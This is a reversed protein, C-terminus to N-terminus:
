ACANTINSATDYTWASAVTLTDGTDAEIVIAGVGPTVSAGARLEIRTPTATIVAHPAVGGLTISALATGTGFLNDGLIITRTGLQGRAPSVLTVSSNVIYTFGGEFVLSAGSNSVIVVHGTQSAAAEGATIVTVTDNGFVIDAAIDALTVSAISTGGGLFNSGTITILTGFSGSNPAISDVVGAPLFTWATSSPTAVVAGTDAFIEVTGTAASANVPVIAVVHTSNSSVIDTTTADAFVVRNAAAGGGLLSTGTITVRTGVRGSSPSVSNISGLALYTWGDVRVVRDGNSPTLVIDGRGAGGHAAVVVVDTSNQSVITSAAVGNLTVNVLTPAGSLLQVGTISVVTGVVGRAPTVTHIDSAILYTFADVATVVAGDTSTLVVDGTIEETAEPNGAEVVVLTDNQFLITSTEVSVLVVREVGSSGSRLDTGTITVVTGSTGSTPAVATINGAVTYTWASAQTVIAGTDATLVVSGASGTAASPGAILRVFFNTEEIILADVGSLTVTTIASGQGRLDRGYLFVATGGIGQTPQLAVVVGNVVHHFADLLRVVVGTDSVLEVDGVTSSGTARVTVNVHTNSSGTVDALTGAVTARVIAVGGGLLSTGSLQVRTGEQGTSPDVATINGPTLYDWGDVVRVIAGTNSTIVIDGTVAASSRAAVVVIVSDNASVVSAVAVGALSVANLSAGGGFMQTGIITVLSGLQGSSPTVSTITGDTLFTFADVSSVQAGTDATLVVTVVGNPAGNPLVVVVETDGASVLGSVAEVSGFLLSAIASGGGLLGVGSLTVRTGSQGTAPDVATINQPDAYTWAGVATITAGTDATVVVNGVGATAAVGAVFTVSTNDATINATPVPVGNLTIAVVAAGGGLLNTGNISVRTGAQGRAPVVRDIAGEDLYTFADTATVSAGSLATLVVDGLAGATGGTAVRVTVVADSGTGTAYTAAVGALTVSALDTSGMLLRAGSIVVTTGTQGLAPVVSTVVGDALHTWVATRAVIAGTDATLVVDAAAAADSTAAVVIVHTNNQSVISESANAGLLVVASTGGGLLNTGSITVITGRQGSTPSVASIVGEEIYEWATSLTVTAGIDSTVVVSGNAQASAATAVVVVTSANQSAVLAAIGGLTVNTVATGGGFLGVGAITVVTGRQGSAPAIADIQPPAVYAFSGSRSVTAGFASTVVVSGSGTAGSAAAVVVIETNSQVVIEAVSVGALTIDRVSSAGLLLGTGRITVFAGAQGQAPTVDTINGVGAYEFASTAIVESGTEATLVVSGSPTAGASPGASVVVVTNNSSLIDASIGALSVTVLVSGQGLLSTGTITVLTGNQGSPPQVSTIRGPAAYTFSLDREGTTGSVSALTQGSNTEITVRGVRDISNGLAAAAVVVTTANASVLSATVSALQVRSVDTGGGLLFQGGITVLTGGQGSAPTISSIVTYSWANTGVISVGNTGTVVVDGTIQALSIPGDGVTVIVYTSNEEVIVAPLGALTVTRLGDSSGGFLGFGSIVVRNGGQGASPAVVVIEGEQLYTFTDVGVVTAGTNGTIVIDSVLSVNGLYRGAVIEVLRCGTNQLITANIGAITVSAVGTAGRGCLNAGALVIETGSQGSSPSVADITGPALYQFGGTLVVISGDNATTAIDVVTDAAPPGAGVRVVITDDAASVVTASVSGFTVTRIASGSAFLGTGALTVITGLQGSAPTVDTINGSANYTFGDTLTAVAGNDAAVVVDGTVDALVRNFGAAVVITTDNGSVLTAPVGAMAVSAVSAGGGLLLSGTITVAVSSQGFSPSLATISSAVVYTFNVTSSVIAGNDSTVVVAGTTSAM